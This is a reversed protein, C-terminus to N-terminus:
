PDALRYVLVYIGETARGRAPKVEPEEAMNEIGIPVAGSATL